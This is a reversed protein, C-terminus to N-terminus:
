TKIKYPTGTGVACHIKMTGTLLLYLKVNPDIVNDAVPKSQTECYQHFDLANTCIVAQRRTEAITAAKKMVAGLGYSPSKGHSSEFYHHEAASMGTELQM